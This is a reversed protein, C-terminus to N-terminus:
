PIIYKRHTKKLHYKMIVRTGTFNEIKWEGEIKYPLMQVKSVIQINDSVPNTWFDNQHLGNLTTLKINGM